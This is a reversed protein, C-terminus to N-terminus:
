LSDITIKLRRKVAEITNPNLKEHKEKLRRIVEDRIEKEIIIKEFLEVVQGYGIGYSSKRGM